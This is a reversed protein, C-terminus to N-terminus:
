CGTLWCAHSPNRGGPSPSTPAPKAKRWARWYRARASQRLDRAAHRALCWPVVASLVLGSSPAAQKSLFASARGAQLRVNVKCGGEVVACGTWLRAGLRLPQSSARCGATPRRRQGGGAARQGGGARGALRASVSIARRWEDLQSTTSNAHSVADRWRGAAGRRVGPPHGRANCPAAPRAGTPVSSRSVRHTPLLLGM